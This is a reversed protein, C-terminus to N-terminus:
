KKTDRRCELSNSHPGNRYKTCNKDRHDTEETLLRMVRSCCMSSYSSPSSETVFTMDCRIGISYSTALKLKILKVKTNGFFQEFEYPELCSIKSQKVLFLERLKKTQKKEQNVNRNKPM